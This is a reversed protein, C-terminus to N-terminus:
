DSESDELDSGLLRRAAVSIASSESPTHVGDVTAMGVTAVRGDDATQSMSYREVEQRM